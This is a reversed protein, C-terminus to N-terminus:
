DTPEQPRGYSQGIFNPSSITLGRPIAAEGACATVCSRM